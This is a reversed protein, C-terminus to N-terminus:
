LLTFRYFLKSCTYFNLYIFAIIWRYMVCVIKNYFLSDIGGHGHYPMSAYVLPSM